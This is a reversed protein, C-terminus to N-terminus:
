FRQKAPKTGDDKDLIMVVTPTEPYQYLSQEIIKLSNDADVNIAIIRLHPSDKGISKISNRVIVKLGDLDTIINKYTYETEEVSEDCLANLIRSFAQSEGALDIKLINVTEM